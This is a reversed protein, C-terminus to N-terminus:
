ELTLVPGIMDPFNFRLFHYGIGSLGQFFSPNCSGDPCSIMYTKNKVGREAMLSIIKFALKILEPRGTKQGAYFLFEARGMDGCCCHDIPGPHANTIFNIASDIDRRIDDNDLIDLAALRGLGIGASGHCWTNNIYNDTRATDTRLDPWGGSSTFISKEYGIAEVAAVKFKNDGCAKYLKLLAYAIGAAGHSFGALCSDTFNKWARGNKTKVRSSLLYKGIAAAKKILPEDGSAEHLKLLCLITGAGGAIIDYNKDSSISENDIFSSVKLADDILNPGDTLESIKVLTYALSVPAAIGGAGFETILTRFKEKKLINLIASITELALDKYKLNRTVKYLAAFFLATGPMGGYLDHGLPMLRYRQSETELVPALWSITKDNSRLAANEITEAIEVSREIYFKASHVKAVAKKLPKGGASEVRVPIHAKKTYLAGKIFLIQKELDKEGFKKLRRVFENFSPKSFFKVEKKMHPFKIKNSATSVAFYPIDNNELMNRENQALHWLPKKQGGQVAMKLLPMFALSYLAGDRYNDPTFSGALLLAYIKTARMVCRVKIGNFKKFVSNKSLISNKNEALFRYMEEFGKMFDDRHDELVSVKNKLAPRNRPKRKYIVSKYNMNDTNIDVWEKTEFSSEPEEGGFGSVDFWKNSAGRVWVPLLLTHLVSDTMQDMAGSYDNEADNGAGGISQKQHSFLTELDILVPHQGHVIINEFHCDTGGLLYQLALFEGCRFWYKKMEDINNCAAYEIFESWGHEKRCLTKFTKMKLPMGLENLMEICENYIKETEICKPKYVIKAGSSFKIIHATKGGNHPDSVRTDIQVVVGAAKNSNFLKEIDALDASLREIFEFRNVIWQLCLRSILKAYVPYETFIKIFGGSYQEEIFKKYLGNSGDNAFSSFCYFCSSNDNEASKFMTFEVYLLLSSINLLSRILEQELTAHSAGSLLFYKDGSLAKLKKRAYLVCPHFFHQFASEKPEPWGYYGPDFIDLGSKKIESIENIISRLSESWDPLPSNEKLKYNGFLKLAEDESSGFLSLPDKAGANKSSMALLWKDLAKRASVTGFQKEDFVLQGSMREDIASAGAIIQNLWTTEPRM